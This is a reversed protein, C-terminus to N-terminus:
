ERFGALVKAQEADLIYDFVTECHEKTDETANTQEQVADWLEVMAQRVAATKKDVETM